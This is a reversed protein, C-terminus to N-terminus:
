ATGTASVPSISRPRSGPGRSARVAARPTLWLCSSSGLPTKRVRSRRVARKM